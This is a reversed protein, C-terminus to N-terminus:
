NKVCCRNEGGTKTVSDTKFFCCIYIIFMYKLKFHTLTSKFEQRKIYHWLGKKSHRLQNCDEIIKRAYIVSM